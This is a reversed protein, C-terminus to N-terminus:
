SFHRKVLATLAPVGLMAPLAAFTLMGKLNASFVLAATLFCTFVAALFVYESRPSPLGAKRLASLAFFGMQSLALYLLFLLPTAGTSLLSLCLLAAVASVGLSLAFGDM